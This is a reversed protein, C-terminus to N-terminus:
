LPTYNLPSKLPLLLSFLPPSPNPPSLHFPSLYFQPFKLAFNLTTHLNVEYRFDALILAKWCNFGGGYLSFFIITKKLKMNYKNYM